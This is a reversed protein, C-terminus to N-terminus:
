RDTKLPLPYEEPRVFWEENFKCGAIRLKELLHPNTGGPLHKGLVKGKEDVGFREFRFIDNVIVEHESLGIVESVYTVRRSGDSLRSAQVVINIASAIQQRMARETLKMGAMQIMTEIRLM